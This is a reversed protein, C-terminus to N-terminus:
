TRREMAARAATRGQLPFESALADAFLLNRDADVPRAGVRRKRHQDISMAAAPHDEAEIRM